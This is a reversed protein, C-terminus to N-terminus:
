WRIKRGNRRGLTSRESRRAPRERTTTSETNTYGSLAFNKGCNKCVRFRQERRVCARLLFEVIEHVDKPRLVEAIHEADV